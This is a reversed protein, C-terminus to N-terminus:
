IYHSICAQFLSMYIHQCTPQTVWGGLTVAAHLCPRILSVQQREVSALCSGSHPAVLVRLQLTAQQQMGAFRQRLVSTVTTLWCNQQLGYSAIQMNLLGMVLEGIQKDASNNSHQPM